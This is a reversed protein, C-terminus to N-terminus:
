GAKFHVLLIHHLVFTTFIFFLCLALDHLRLFASHKTHLRSLNILKITMDLRHFDTVQKLLQIAVCACVYPSLSFGSEKM